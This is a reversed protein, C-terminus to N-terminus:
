QRHIFKIISEYVSLTAPIFLLILLTSYALGFSIAAAMPILFQAQLSTEFLLPTLGAITTISTLIVARLRQCSAQIIAESITKSTQKAQAYASLLIISDNVVIGSLGFFGFLSLITLDLGMVLHGFIAGTLGLPIALMIIVPWGYSSFVWALVIYILGLGLILGYSMDRLTDRQEEARGTFEYSIGYNRQLQPMTTQRLENLIENSNGVNADVEATVNVSLESNTHRIIDFGKRYSIKVISGLPILQGQPTIIPLRELSGLREREAQPLMVRVEIEDDKTNFTEALQGSFAGRLQAGINETTLGLAKGTANLQYILQTQGFPLDDEINSVGKYTALKEELVIAAKKLTTSNAGTIQIDIDQGRPGAKPSTIILKEIGPPIAINKRWANILQQNTVKRSDPSTLEVTLGGFQEGYEIPIGEIDATQNQYRLVTTIIPKDDKILDKETKYLIKEAYNIFEKVKYPPTGAIFQ